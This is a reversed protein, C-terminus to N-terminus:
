GGAVDSARRLAATPVPRVGVGATIAWAALAPLLFRAPVPYGLALLVLDVGIWAIGGSAVALVVRDGTRRAAVVGAAALALAVPVVFLAVLTATANFRSVPSEPGALKALAAGHAPDGSGLWDGVFWAAGVAVAMLTAVIPLAPRARWHAVGYGLVLLLAEERGLAMAALLTLALGHRGQEHTLVAAGALLVIVPEIGGGLLTPWWGPALAFLAMAVVGGLAGARQAALRGILLMGLIGATRILLLWLTPAAPGTAAVPVALLLGLPKWSPYASTDFHELGHRVEHGWLLWGQPDFRLSHGFLLSIAAAALAGALLAASGGPSLRRRM